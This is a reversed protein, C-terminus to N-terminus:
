AYATALDLYIPRNIEPTFTPLSKSMPLQMVLGAVNIGLAERLGCYSTTLRPNIELVTLTGNKSRILDVGIYGWLGPLVRAIQRALSQCNADDRSYANITIGDVSVAEDNCSVHQRNVSILLADGQACLLSFSLSEGACWPQIVQPYQHDPSIAQFAAGGNPWLRIGQGGSGDDPKSVFKGTLVNAKGPLRYTSVVNVGARRLAISTKLKSACIALAESDSLVVKKGATRALQALKELAHDNEPAIPWVVDVNALARQFYDFWIEGDCPEIRHYTFETLPWDCRSDRTLSLEIEPVLSLDAILADRMMAGERLLTPPLSAGIMGGGTIFEFVLLRM